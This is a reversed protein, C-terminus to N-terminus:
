IAFLGIDLPIRFPRCLWKMKYKRGKIYLLERGCWPHQAYFQQGLSAREVLTFTVLVGIGADSGNNM